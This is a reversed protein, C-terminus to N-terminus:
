ELNELGLTTDIKVKKIECKLDRKNTESCSKKGVNNEPDCIRFTKSTINRSPHTVHSSDTLEKVDYFPSKLEERIGHNLNKIIGISFL